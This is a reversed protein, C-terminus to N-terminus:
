APWECPTVASVLLPRRATASPSITAKMAPSTTAPMRAWESATEGVSGVHEGVRARDGQRQERKAEGGPGGCSRHGEAQFAGLDERGLDVAAAQEYEGGQDDVLRDVPEDGRGIGGTPRDDDDGEGTNRHVQERGPLERFGVALVHGDLAAELVDQGVEVREDAGQDGAGDDERGAGVAGVRDGGQEDRRQHEPRGVTQQLVRPANEELHRGLLQVHLFDPIGEGAWGWTAETWSRWTQSIPDPKGDSEACTSTCM